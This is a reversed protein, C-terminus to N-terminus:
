RDYCRWFSCSPPQPLSVDVGEVPNQPFFLILTTYSPDSSRVLEPGNAYGCYNSFVPLWLILPLMLLLPLWPVLTVVTVVSVSIIKAVIVVMTVNTLVTTMFTRLDEYLTGTIKDLTLSSDEACIKTFSGLILNWSFLGAPTSNKRASSCVSLCVSLCSSALIREKCYKKRIRRFGFLFSICCINIGFIQVIKLITRKLSSYLLM